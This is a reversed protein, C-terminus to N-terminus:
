SRAISLASFNPMFIGISLFASAIYFLYTKYSLKVRTIIKFAKLFKLGKM